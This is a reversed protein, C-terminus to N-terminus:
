IWKAEDYIGWSIMISIITLKAVDLGIYLNHFFHHEEQIDPIGKLSTLGMLDAQKWLSTLEIIKPTLYSFFVLSIMWVLIGMILFKFANKNKLTQYSLLGVLASSVMVELNNLRSFVAIGLEGAQFFIDIHRFVTPVIVFDTLVTWGWWLSLLVLYSSYILRSKTM